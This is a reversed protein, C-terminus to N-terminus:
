NRKMLRVSQEKRSLFPYRFYFNLAFPLCDSLSPTCKQSFFFDNVNQYSAMELIILLVDDKVPNHYEEKNYLWGQHSGVLEKEYLM